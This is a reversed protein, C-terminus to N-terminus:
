PKAAVVPRMTEIEDIWYGAGKRDVDSQLMKDLEAVNAKSGVRWFSLLIFRRLDVMTAPDTNPYAEVLGKIARAVDVGKMSGLLVAAKCAAIVDKGNLKGVLCATDGEKCDKLVGIMSQFEKADPNDGEIRAKVLESKDAKVLRTFEDLHAWDLGLTIPKVLPARFRADEEKKFVDILAQVGVFGQILAVGTATDLRQKADNDVNTVVEKLKPVISEGAVNWLAMMGMAIRNQQSVQWARLVRDDVGVPPNLTQAMNKALAESAAHDRLDGLVQIIEPGELWQWDYLGYKKATDQLDKVVAAPEKGGSTVLTALPGVVPKGIKAIAKRVPTYMAGGRQSRLFLSVILDPIAKESKIQGLFDAALANVRIDQINPDYRLLGILLDEDQKLNDKDIRVVAKLANERAKMFRDTTLIELLSPKLEALAFDEAVAAALTAAMPDGLAKKLLGLSEKPANITKVTQLIDDKYQSGPFIEELDALNEKCRLDGLNKIADRAKVPSKLFKAWGKCTTPTGKRCGTGIALCVAVAAILISLVANRRM